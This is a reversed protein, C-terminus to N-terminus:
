QVPVGLIAKKRKVFGKFHLKAMIERMVRDDGLLKSKSM